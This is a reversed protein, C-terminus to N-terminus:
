NSAHQNLYADCLTRDGMKYVEGDCRALFHFDDFHGGLYLGQLSMFPVLGLELRFIVRICLTVRTLFM